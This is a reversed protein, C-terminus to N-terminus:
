KKFQTRTDDIKHFNKPFYSLSELFKGEPRQSHPLSYFNTVPSSHECNYLSIKIEVNKKEFAMPM